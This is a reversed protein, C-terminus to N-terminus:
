AIEASRPPPAQRSLNRPGCTQRQRAQGFSLATATGMLAKYDDAHPNDPSGLVAIDAISDVFRCVAWARPEEGRRALLPGHTRAQGFAPLAPLLCATRPRSPSASARVRSSSAVDTVLPSSV